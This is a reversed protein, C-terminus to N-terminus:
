AQFMSMQKWGAVQAAIEDVRVLDGAQGAEQAERYASQYPEPVAALEDPMLALALKISYGNLGHLMMNVKAMQVCTRDIDQGYFQVLGWDLAWRPTNEAAALFMVGSGCACDSVTIPDFHEVVLPVLNEGMQRVFASIREGANEGLIIQHMAGYVSKLYAAELRQYVLKEIDLLSATM